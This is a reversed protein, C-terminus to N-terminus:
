DCDGVGNSFFPLHGLVFYNIRHSLENHTFVVMGEISRRRIQVIVLESDLKLSMLIKSDRTNPDQLVMDWILFTDCFLMNNYFQKGM